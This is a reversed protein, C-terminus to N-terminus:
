YPLPTFRTAVPHCGTSSRVRRFRLGGLPKDLLTWCFLIEDLLRFYNRFVIRLSPTPPELGNVPVVKRQGEENLWRLAEPFSSAGPM